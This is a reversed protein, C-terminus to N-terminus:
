FVFDLGDHVKPGKGIDTLRASGRSFVVAVVDGVGKLQQLGHTSM